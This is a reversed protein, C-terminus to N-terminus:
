RVEASVTITNLPTLTDAQNVVVIDTINDPVGNEGPKVTVHFVCQSTSGIGTNTAANAVSTLVGGAEGVLIVLKAPPAAGASCNGTADTIAIHASLIRNPTVDIFPYLAGPPLGSLM